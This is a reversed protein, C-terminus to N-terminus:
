NGCLFATRYLYTISLCGNKAAFGGEPSAQPYRRLQSGALVKGQYGWRHVGWAEGIPTSSCPDKLQGQIKDM